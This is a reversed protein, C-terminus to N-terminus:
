QKKAFHQFHRQSYKSLWCCRWFVVIQLCGRLNANSYITENNCDEMVEVKEVEVKDVVKVEEMEGEGTEVGKGVVRAVEEKEEERAVVEKEEERAAEKEGERLVEAM